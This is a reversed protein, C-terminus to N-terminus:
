FIMYPQISVNFKGSIEIHIQSTYNLKSDQKPSRKWKRNIMKKEQTSAQIHVPMSALAPACQRELHAWSYIYTYAHMHLGLALTRLRRGNNQLKNMSAPNRWQALGSSAFM